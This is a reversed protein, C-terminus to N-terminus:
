KMWVNKLWGVIRMMLLGILFLINLSLECM